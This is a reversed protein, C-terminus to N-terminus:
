RVWNPRSIARWRREAAAYAFWATDAGVRPFARVLQDAGGFGFRDHGAYGVM